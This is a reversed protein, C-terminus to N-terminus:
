PPVRWEPQVTWSERLDVESRSGWARDRHGWVWTAKFCNAANTTNGTRNTARCPALTDDLMLPVANTDRRTGPIPVPVREGCKWGHATIQPEASPASILDLGFVRM